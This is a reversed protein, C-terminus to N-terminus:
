PGGFLLRIVQNSKSEGEPIKSKSIEELKQQRLFYKISAFEIAHDSDSIKSHRYTGEILLLISQYYSYAHDLLRETVRSSSGSHVINNRERYIRHLQWEIKNYLTTNKKSVDKPDSYVRQLRALRYLALPSCAVLACLEKQFDNEGLIISALKEAKTEGVGRAEIFSSFEEGFDSRINRYTAEFVVRIYDYVVCPVLVECFHTIRVASEKDKTPQPLLVEFASWLSVIKAEVDPSNISLSASNVSRILRSTTNADSTGFMYKAFDAAPDFRRLGLTVPVRMTRGVSRSISKFVPQPGIVYISTGLRVHNGQPRMAGLVTTVRLLKEFVNVASFPDVAKLTLKLLSRSSFMNKVRSALRPDVVDDVSNILIIEFHESIFSSFEKSATIYLEYEVQKLSFREFYRELLGRTCRVINRDFFHAKTSSFVHEKDNGSSIVDSAYCKCIEVIHDKKRGDGLCFEIIKEECMKRYSNSTLSKLLDVRRKLAETTQNMDLKFSQETLHAQELIEKAVPDNLLDFSIEELLPQLVPKPVEKRQVREIEGILEDLRARFSLSDCQFAEWSKADVLELMVEAFFLYNQATETKPWQNDARRM